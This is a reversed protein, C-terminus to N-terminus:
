RSVDERPLAVAPMDAGILTAIAVQQDLLSQEITVIEQEKTLRAGVLDVYSREDLNGANFASEARSAVRRTGSLEHRVDQLQRNLLDIEAMMGRVQGVAATLRAAYEDHL